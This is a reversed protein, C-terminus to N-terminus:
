RAVIRNWICAFVTGIVYGVIGTLIVLMLAGKWSFALTTFPNSLFHMGFVFSLYAKAKGTAVLVSWAAHLTAIFAGIALGTRHIHLKHM